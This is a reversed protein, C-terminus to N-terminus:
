VKHTGGLDTHPGGGGGGGGPPTFGCPCPVNQNFSGDWDRYYCYSGSWYVRVAGPDSGRDTPFAWGVSSDLGSPDVGGPVGDILIQNMIVLFSIM